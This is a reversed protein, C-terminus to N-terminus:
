FTYKLAVCPWYDQKFPVTIELSLDELLKAYFSLAVKTDWDYTSTITRLLLAKKDSMNYTVTNLIYLGPIKEWNKLFCIPKYWVSNVSFKDNLNCNVMVFVSGMDENNQKFYQSLEGWIGVSLRDSVDCSLILDTIHNESNPNNKEITWYISGSLNINAKEGLPFTVSGLVHLWPYKSYDTFTFNDYLRSLFELSLDYKIKKKGESNTVMLSDAVCSDNDETQFEEFQIINKAVNNENWDFSLANVIESSMNPTNSPQAYANAWIVICIPLLSKLRM